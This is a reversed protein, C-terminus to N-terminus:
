KATYLKIELKTLLIKRNKTYPTLEVKDLSVLYPYKYLEQFFSELDVYDSIVEMNLKCVNYKDSAKKVFEDDAPNYVYEISYIKIGNYKAMEIIDDFLVTFSSEADLGSGEPQYIKKVESAANIDKEMQAAKLTELKRQLDTMEVTKAKIATEDKYLSVATPQLKVVAYILGLLIFFIYLIAEKYRLM